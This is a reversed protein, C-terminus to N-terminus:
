ALGKGTKASQVVQQKAANLEQSVQGIQSQLSSIKAEKTEAPLDSAEVEIIQAMLKKLRGELEKVTDEPSKSLLSSGGESEETEDTKANPEDISQAAFPSTAANAGALSGSQNFEDIAGNSLQLKRAAEREKEMKEKLMESFYRATESLSVTDGSAAPQPAPKGTSTYSSYANVETISPVSMNNTINM